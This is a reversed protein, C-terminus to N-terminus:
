DSPITVPELRRDIEREDNVDNVAPKIKDMGGETVGQLNEVGSARDSPSPGTLANRREIFDEKWKNWDYMKDAHLDEITIPKEPDTLFGMKGGELIVGEGGPGEGFGSFFVTNEYVDTEAIKGDTITDWGTGRVGCVSVPTRIEFVANKSLKEVLSRLEGKILNIKTAGLDTFVVHTNEQVRVSNKFDRGFGIEAWSKGGTKLNDGKILVMGKKASIWADSKESKVKVDGEMFLIIGNDQSLASTEQAYTNYPFFIAAITGLISLATIVKKM